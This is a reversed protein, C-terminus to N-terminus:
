GLDVRVGEGHAADAKQLSWLAADCAGYDSDTVVGDNVFPNTRLGM